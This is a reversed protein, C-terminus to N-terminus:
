LRKGMFKEEKLFKNGFTAVAKTKLFVSENEHHVNWLTKWSFAKTELTKTITINCDSDGHCDM